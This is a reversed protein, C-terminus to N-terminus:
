EPGRFPPAEAEDDRRGFRLNNFINPRAKRRPQFGRGKPALDPLQFVGDHAPLCELRKNEILHHSIGIPKKEWGKTKLLKTPYGEMKGSPTTPLRKTGILTRMPRQIRGALTGGARQANAHLKLLLNTIREVQRFSSEEMRVALAARSVMPMMMATRYYPSTTEMLEDGRESRAEKFAHIEQSLLDLLQKRAERRERGEAVPIEPVPTPEDDEPKSDQPRPKLLRYLLMFIEGPRGEPEAGYVDHLMRIEVLGTFYDEEAVAATLSKLRAMRREYQAGAERALREVNVDLKELQAVSMSEQIRDGREMRWLARALRTVLRSEFEDAPQWTAILSELLHEFEAPDEGLARLAEGQARSYFGHRLNAARICEIGEPTTPGRSQRANSQNAALRQPSLPLKRLLSM